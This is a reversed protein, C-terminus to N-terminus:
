RAGGSLLCDDDDMGPISLDQYLHSQRSMVKGQIFDRDLIM